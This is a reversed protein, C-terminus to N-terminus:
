SVERAPPEGTVRYVRRPAERLPQDEPGKVYPHVYRWETKARGAGTRYRHWHGKVMWRCSWSAPSQGEGPQPAQESARRRLRVVSVRGPIRGVRQHFGRRKATMSVEGTEMAPQRMLMWLAIAGAIPDRVAGHGAQAVAEQYGDWDSMPLGLPIATQHYVTLDGLVRRLEPVRRKEEEAYWDGVDGFSTWHHVIVGGAADAAGAAPDIMRARQQEAATILSWSMARTLRMKGHVDMLEYPEAFVVFGSPSPPTHEDVVASEPLDAAAQRILPVADADVLYSDARGLIIRLSRCWSSGELTVQQRSLNTQERSAIWGGVYTQHWPTGLAALLDAQMRLVEEPKM